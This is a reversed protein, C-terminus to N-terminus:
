GIIKQFFQTIVNNIKNAITIVNNKIKGDNNKVFKMITKSANDIKIFIKTKTFTSFSKRSLTIFFKFCTLYTEHSKRKETMKIECSFTWTEHKQVNYAACKHIKQNKVITCKNNRYGRVCHECRTRERCKTTIITNNVISVNNLKVITAFNKANKSKTATEYNKM